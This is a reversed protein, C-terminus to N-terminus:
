RRLPQIWKDGDYLSEDLGIFAPHISDILEKVDDPTYGHEKALDVAEWANLRRCHLEDTRNVLEQYLDWAKDVNDSFIIAKPEYWFNDTFLYMEM